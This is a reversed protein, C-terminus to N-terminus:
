HKDYYNAVAKFSEKPEWPMDPYTNGKKDFEGGIKPLDEPSLDVGLSKRSKRGTQSVILDVTEEEPYSKVLSYSGLDMDFRSDPAYTSTPSVFMFVFAGEVGAGDFAVLQEGSEKAQMTEDRIYHCDVKQIIKLTEGITKPINIKPGFYDAMIRYVIVFGNGSLMDTGRYTCCGCEGIVVPNNYALYGSVLKGFM